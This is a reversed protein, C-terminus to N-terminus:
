NGEEEAIDAAFMLWTYRVEQRTLEDDFERFESLGTGQGMEQMFDWVGMELDSWHIQTYNRIAYDIADCCFYSKEGDVMWDRNRWEEITKMWLHENAAKRLITSIKIM